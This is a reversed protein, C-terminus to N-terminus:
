PALNFASLQWGSRRKLVAWRANGFVEVARYRAVDGPSGDLLGLLRMMAGRMSAGHGVVVLTDTDGAAEAHRAIAAEARRWCADLTEGGGIAVDEGATWRAFQEPFREAIEHRLLGEWAGGSRERLEPDSKVSVGLAEALPAATQVARALDSSAIRVAGRAADDALWAGLAGAAARAQAHGTEDLAIDIHGQFRGEANSPTRGHRLLVLRAATM